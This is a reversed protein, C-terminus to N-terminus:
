ADELDEILAKIERYNWISFGLSSLIAIADGILILDSATGAKEISWGALGLLLALSAFFLKEHFAIEAKIKDSKSM